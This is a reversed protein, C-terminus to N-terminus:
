TRATFGAQRVTEVFLVNQDFATGSKDMLGGLAGKRLGFAFETDIHNRVFEYILDPDNKLARALEVIEPPRGEFGSVGTFSSSHTTAGGYYTQGASPSVLPATLFKMSPLTLPAQQAHAAVGAIMLACAALAARVLPIRQRTKM